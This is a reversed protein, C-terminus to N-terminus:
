RLTVFCCNLMSPLSQQDENLKKQLELEQKKKLRQNADRTMRVEFPENIYNSSSNKNKKSMYLDLEDDEKLRVSKAM